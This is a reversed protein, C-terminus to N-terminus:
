SSIQPFAAAILGRERGDSLVARKFGSLDWSGECCMAAQMHQGWDWPSVLGVGPVCPVSRAHM